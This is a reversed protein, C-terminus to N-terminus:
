SDHNDCHKAVILLKLYLSNSQQLIFPQILNLNGFISCKASLLYVYMVLTTSVGQLCHSCEPQRLCSEVRTAVGARPCVFLFPSVSTRQGAHPNRQTYGASQCCCFAEPLVRHGSRESRHEPDLGDAPGPQGPDSCRSVVPLVRRCIRLFVTKLNLLLEPM